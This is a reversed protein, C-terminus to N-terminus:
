DAYRTAFFLTSLGSGSGNIELGGRLNDGGDIRGRSLGGSELCVVLVIVTSSSRFNMPYRFVSVIRGCM